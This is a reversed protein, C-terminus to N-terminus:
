CAQDKIFVPSYGLDTVAGSHTLTQKETLTAGGLTYVRVSNDGGGVAVEHEDRSIAVCQPEYDVKLSGAIQGGRLLVVEKNCAAIVIGGSVSSALGKPQSPLKVQKQYGAHDISALDSFMVMDDM